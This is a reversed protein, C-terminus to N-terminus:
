ELAEGVANHQIPLLIEGAGIKRVMFITNYVSTERAEPWRVSYVTLIRGDSLETKEKFDISIKSSTKDKPSYPLAGRYTLRGIAADIMDRDTMGETGDNFYYRALLQLYVPDAGRALEIALENKYLFYLSDANKQSRINKRYIIERYKDTLLFKEACGQMRDRNAAINAIFDRSANKLAEKNPSNLRFIRDLEPAADPPIGACGCVVMLVSIYLLRAM